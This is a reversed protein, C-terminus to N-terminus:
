LQRESEQRATVDSLLVAVTHTSAEGTPFAYVEYYKTEQQDGPMILRVPAQMAVVQQYANLWAKAHAIDLSTLTKGAADALGTVKEFAPNVQLYTFDVADGQPDYQMQVLAFGQDISRFLEQYQAQARQAVLENMRLIQEQKKKELTIDEASVIVYDQRDTGMRQARASQPGRAEDADGFSGELQLRMVKGDQAIIRVSSAHSGTGRRIIARFTDIDDPYILYNADQFHVIYDFNVPLGIPSPCAAMTEDDVQWTGDFDRFAAHVLCRLVDHDTQTMDGSSYPSEM